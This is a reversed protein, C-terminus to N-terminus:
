QLIINQEQATTTLRDKLKFFENKIFIDAESIIKYELNKFNLKLLKFFPKDNKILRGINHTTSYNNQNEILQSAPTSKFYHKKQM